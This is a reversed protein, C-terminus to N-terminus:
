IDEKSLGLKLGGHANSISEKRNAWAVLAGAIERATRPNDFQASFDFSDYFTVYAEGFEISMGDADGEPELGITFPRGETIADIMEVVEDTNL